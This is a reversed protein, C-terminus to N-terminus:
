RSEEGEEFDLDYRPPLGAKVCLENVQKKLEVMRLERGVAVRNFSALDENAVRLEEAHRRIEEEARRRETIDLGYIRVVGEQAFHYFSQQYVRDGVTVDRGASDTQRERLPRM